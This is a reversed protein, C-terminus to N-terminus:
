ELHGHSAPDSDVKSDGAVIEEKCANRGRCMVIELRDFKFRISGNRFYM